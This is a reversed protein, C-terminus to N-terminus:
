PYYREYLAQMKPDDPFALDITRPEGQSDSPSLEEARSAERAAQLLSNPGSEKLLQILTRAKSDPTGSLLGDITRSIPTGRM